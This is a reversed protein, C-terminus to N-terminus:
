GRSERNPNTRCQNTTPIQRAPKRLALPGAFEAARIDVKEMAVQKVTDELRLGNVGGEAVARKMFNPAIAIALCGDAAVQGLLQALQAGSSAQENAIHDPRIIALTFDQQPARVGIPLIKGRM